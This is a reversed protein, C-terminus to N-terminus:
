FDNTCLIRSLPRLPFPVASGKERPFNLCASCISPPSIRHSGEEQTVGAPEDWLGSTWLLHSLLVCVCVSNMEWFNYRHRLASGGGGKGRRVAGILYRPPVARVWM